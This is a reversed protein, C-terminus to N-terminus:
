SKSTEKVNMVGCFSPKKTHLKTLPAAISSFGEVFRRYYGALGLFSHIKTPTTPRPWNKVAKIKQNDVRIGEDSVIHGPSHHLGSNHFDRIRTGAARDVGSTGAVLGKHRQGHGAVICTLLQVVNRLDQETANIPPEQPAVERRLDEPSPPTLSTQSLSEDQAEGQVAQSPPPQSTGEQAAVDVRKGTSKSRMVLM